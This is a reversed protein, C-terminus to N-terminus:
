NLQGEKHEKQMHANYTSRKNFRKDCKNCIKRKSTITEKHHHSKVHSKLSNTSTTKFDCQDCKQRKRMEQSPQEKLDNHSREIHKNLLTKSGTKYECQECKTMENKGNKKLNRRQRADDIFQQTNQIEEENLEESEKRVSKIFFETIKRQEKEGKEEEEDKDNSVM